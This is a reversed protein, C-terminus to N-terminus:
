SHCPFRCPFNGLHSCPHFAFIFGERQHGSRYKGHRSASATHVLDMELSLWGNLMMRFCFILSGTEAKLSKVSLYRPLRVFYLKTWNSIYSAEFQTTFCFIQKVDTSCICKVSSSIFNDQQCWLKWIYFFVPVNSEHWAQLLLFVALDFTTDSIDPLLEVGKPITRHFCYCPLYREPWSLTCSFHAWYKM